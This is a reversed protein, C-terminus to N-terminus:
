KKKGSFLLVLAAAFWIWAKSGPGSSGTCPANKTVVLLYHDKLPANGFFESTSGFFQRGSISETVTQKEEESLLRVTGAFWGNKLWIEVGPSQMMFDRIGDMEPGTLALLLRGNQEMCPFSHKGSRGPFYLVAQQGFAGPLANIVPGLGTEWALLKTKGLLSKGLKEVDANKLSSATIKKIDM